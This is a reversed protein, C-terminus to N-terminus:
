CLLSIIKFNHNFIGIGNDYRYLVLNLKSSIHTMICMGNVLIRGIYGIEM